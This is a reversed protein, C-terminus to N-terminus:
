RIVPAGVVVKDVVEHVGETTRAIEVARARATESPVTGTLTVVGKNDTDVRLDSKDLMDQTVSVLKSSMPAAVTTAGGGEIEAAIAGGAFGALTTLALLKTSLKM